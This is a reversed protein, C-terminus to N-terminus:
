RSPAFPSPHPSSLRLLWSPWSYLSQLGTLASPRPMSRRSSLRALVFAVLAIMSLLIAAPEPIPGGIMSFYHVENALEGVVTLKSATRSYPFSADLLFSFNEIEGTAIPSGTQGNWFWHLGGWDPQWPLNFDSGEDNVAPGFLDVGDDPQGSPNLASPPNAIPGAPDWFEVQWGDPLEVDGLSLQQLADPEIELFFHHQPQPEPNYVQYEFRNQPGQPLVQLGVEPSGGKKVVLFQFMEVYDAENGANNSNAIGRVLYNNGRGGNAAGAGAPIRFRNNPNNNGSNDTIINDYFDYYATSVANAQNAHSGWGNTMYINRHGPDNNAAVPADLGAVGLAHRSKDNNNQVFNGDPTHWVWHTEVLALLPQNQLNLLWSYLNQYTAAGRNYTRVSLGDANAGIGTGLFGSSYLHGRENIYRTAGGEHGWGNNMTGYILTELRNRLALADAAWGGFGAPWTPSNPHDVLRMDGASGDYPATESWNWMLNAMSAAGCIGTGNGLNMPMSQHIDPIGTPNASDLYVTAGIAPLPLVLVALLLVILRWARHRGPCQRASAASAFSPVM